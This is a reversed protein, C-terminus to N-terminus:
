VLRWKQIKNLITSLFKNPSSMAILYIMPIYPGRLRHIAGANGLTICYFSFMFIMNFFFANLFFDKKAFLNKVGKLFSPLMLYLILMDPVYIIRQPKIWTWPLPATFLYFFGVIYPLLFFKSYLAGFDFKIEGGGYQYSAERINVLDETSEIGMFSSMKMLIVLLGVVIVPSLIILAIGLKNARLKKHKFSIKLNLLIWSTILAFFLVFAAYPRFCYLLYLAASSLLLYFINLSKYFLYFLLISLYMFITIYGDRILVTTNLMHSFTCLSLLSYIKALSMDKLVRLGIFYLIPAVLSTVISNLICVIFPNVGFYKYVIGIIKPFLGGTYKDMLTDLSYLNAIETGLSHYLAGDNDSTYPHFHNENPMPFGLIHYKLIEWFVLVIFHLGIAMLFIKSYFKDAIFKNLLLYIPIVIFISILLPLVSHEPCNQEFFYLLITEGTFLLTLFFPILSKGKVLTSQM